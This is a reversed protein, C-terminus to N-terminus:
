EVHLSRLRVAGGVINPVDRMTFCGTSTMKCDSGSEGKM